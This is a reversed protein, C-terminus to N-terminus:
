QLKKEQREVEENWGPEGKKSNCAAELEDQTIGYKKEYVAMREYFKLEWMYASAKDNYRPDIKSGYAMLEACEVISVTKGLNISEDAINVVVEQCELGETSSVSLTIDGKKAIMILGLIEVKYGYKKFTNELKEAKPKNKWVYVLTDVASSNQKINNILKIEGGAESFIKKLGKALENPAEVEKASDCLDTSNVNTQKQTDTISNKSCGVGAFVLVGALVFIVGFIKKNM